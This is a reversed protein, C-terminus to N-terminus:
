PKYVTIQTGNSDGDPDHNDSSKYTLTAHTVNSVTFTVSGKTKSISGTTVSCRGTSDTICSASGSYGGSWSGSVTANAVPNHTADHVTTTVTAKWNKSNVNAGVGDLDGVHLTTNPTATPTPPPTTPTPTPPVPTPTPPVPTPTPPVPTPTPPVPTPTPPVPTPTPQGNSLAKYANVRGYGFYMDWGPDGLDDATSEIISRLQVNTRSGDQALLLAAVGSVHPAAMSTGSRSAYPGAGGLWDTSYVGRGPAAVSIYDGYNSLSWRADYSDTASVGMVHTYSAPYFPANSNNNGAAAVLLSGKSWAYEVADFLTSSSTTGGLSLNIVRAGHDAAYTIGLAINSYTGSNYQDLVKVVLLRTNFGIGAVGQTNNTAAGVIGAVHTGHGYDDSPDADNNVYDWGAMLKGQLDPHSFDAGSDVVAVVVNPDGTTIDWALNAQIKQPGYQNSAYYEDNPTFDGQALYDPEAYAVSGDARYGALAAAMQDTPVEVVQVGLQPIESVVAAQHRTHAQLQRDHRTDTNFKVLIRGPVHPAALDAEVRGPDGPSAYTGAALFLLAVLVVGIAFLNASRKFM